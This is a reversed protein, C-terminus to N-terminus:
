NSDKRIVITADGDLYGTIIDISQPTPILSECYSEVLEPDYYYFYDIRDKIAIDVTLINFIFVDRALQYASQIQRLIYQIHNPMRLSFTGSAVVSDSLVTSSYGELWSVNFQTAPYADRAWQIMPECPDIGSYSCEMKLFKLYHYFDGLGCGVDLVSKKSFNHANCFTQFRIRQRYRDKWGVARPDPGYRDVRKKYFTIVDDNTAIATTV